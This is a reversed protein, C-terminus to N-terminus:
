EFPEERRPGIDPWPIVSPKDMLAQVCNMTAVMGLINTTQQNAVANHYMMGSAQNAAVLSQMAAFSPGSGIVTLLTSAVSEATPATAPNKSLELMLKLIEEFDGLTQASKEATKENMKAEVM